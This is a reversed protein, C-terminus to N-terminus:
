ELIIEIVNRNGKHMLASVTKQMGNARVTIDYKGFFGRTKYKGNKDTYGVEKTWWKNYIM